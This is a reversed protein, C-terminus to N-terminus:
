DGGGNSAQTDIKEIGVYYMATLKARISVRAVGDSAASRLSLYAQCYHHRPRIIMADTRAICKDILQLKLKNHMSIM